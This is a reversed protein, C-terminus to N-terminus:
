DALEMRDRRGFVNTPAKDPSYKRIACSRDWIGEFERSFPHHLPLSEVPKPVQRERPFDTLALFLQLLANM